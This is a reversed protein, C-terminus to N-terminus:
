SVTITSFRTPRPPVVLRPWLVRARDHHGVPAGRRGPGAIAFTALEDDARRENDTTMPM